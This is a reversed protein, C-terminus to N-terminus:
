KIVNGTQHPLYLYEKAHGVCNLEKMYEELTPSKPDTGVYKIGNYITDLFFNGVSDIMPVTCSESIKDYYEITINIKGKYENSLCNYKEILEEKNVHINDYIEKNKECYTVDYLHWRKIGKKELYYAILDLEEFNYKTVVTHILVNIKNNLLNNLNEEIKELTDINKNKAPRVLNNIKKDLSDISIRVLSNVNKLNPIINTLTDLTGNTDIIVISEKGLEDIILNLYPNITCEGGTLGVNIVNLKKIAELIVYINEKIERLFMKDNAYCYVCNLNCKEEVLWNIRFPFTLTINNSIKDINNKLFNLKEKDNLTLMKKYDVKEFFVYIDNFLDYLTVGNVEKRIFFRNYINIM